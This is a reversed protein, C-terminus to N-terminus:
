PATFYVLTTSGWFDSVGVTYIGAQFSQFTLTEGSGTWYGSLSVSENVAQTFSLTAQGEGIAAMDSAPLFIYEFTGFAPCAYHWTPNYLLLPRAYSVNYKSYYGAYVNVITAVQQQCPGLAPNVTSQATLVNFTSLSNYVAAYIAVSLNRGQSRPTAVLAAIVQLASSNSEEVSHLQDYLSSVTSTLNEVEATQSAVESKLTSVESNYLSISGTLELIQYALGAVVLILIVIVVESERKWRTGESREGEEEKGASM